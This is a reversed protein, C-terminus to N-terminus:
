KFSNLVTLISDLEFKLAWKAGASKLEDPAVNLSNIKIGVLYNGNEKSKAIEYNQWNRYGIEKSDPHEKNAESGVIVITYTAENIKRTLAAKVVSIRSSKIEQSSMDNFCFDFQPNSDWAELLYKYHRDNEYDFSVFVKKKAL